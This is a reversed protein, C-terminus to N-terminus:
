LMAAICDVEDLVTLLLRLNVNRSSRSTDDACMLLLVHVLCHSCHCASSGWFLASVWAQHHQAADTLHQMDVSGYSGRVVVM